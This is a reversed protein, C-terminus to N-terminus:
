PLGGQEAIQQRIAAGYPARMVSEEVTPLVPSEGHGDKCPGPYPNVHHFQDLPGKGNADPLRGGAPEEGVVDTPQVMYQFHIFNAYPTGRDLVQAWGAFPSGLDCARPAMYTVTPLVANIATDIAPLSRKLRSLMGVAPDVAHDALTLTQRARELPPGAVRLLRTTASLAPPAAALTPRGERALGDVERVLRDVAPLGSRLEALTPPAEQLTQHLEAARRAFPRLARSEPAFGTALDDRVPDFAATAADLTRILQATAGSRQTIADAVSQTRSLLRPSSAITQNLDDGRGAIGTGLQGLLAHTRQRTDADLIGLVDDLAVPTDAQSAPLTEGAALLRGKTGPIVELYRVGVASRLRVRLRSDSRLPAFSSALRLDILAKGNRVRPNLVQGAHLGGIRIELHSTLNDANRLEAHVDYYSRGPVSVAAHYGIYMAGVAVALTALGVLVTFRLAQPKGVAHRSFRRTTTM